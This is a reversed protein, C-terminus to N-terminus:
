AHRLQEPSCRKLRGHTVVRIIHSPKREHGLADTRTLNRNWPRAVEVAQSANESCGYPTSAAHDEKFFLNSPLFVQLRRTKANAARSIKEYSQQKLFANQAQHWPKLNVAMHAGPIASSTWFPDHPAKDHFRGSLSPQRGFAWQYPSYGSVREFGNHTQCAQVVADWADYQGAQLIQKVTQKITQIMREVLSIQRHAEAACPLIEISREQAWQTLEWSKFAGEPDLRIAAPAGYHRVWSDQIGAVAEAGTCNRSQERPHEFLFHPCVLRSAEDVMIMCHIVKDDM